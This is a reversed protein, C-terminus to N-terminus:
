NETSIAFEDSIIPEKIINNSAQESIQSSVVNNNTNASNVVTNVSSIAVPEAQVSNSIM